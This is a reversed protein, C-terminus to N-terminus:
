MYKCRNVFDRYLDHSGIFYYKNNREHLNGTGIIGCIPLMYDHMKKTIQFTTM